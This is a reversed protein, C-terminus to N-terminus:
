KLGWINLFRRFVYSAGIWGSQDGVCDVRSPLLYSARSNVRFLAERHHNWHTEGCSVFYDERKPPNIKGHHIRWAHVCLRKPSPVRRLFAPAPAISLGFVALPDPANGTNNEATLSFVGKLLREERLVVFDLVVLNIPSLPSSSSSSSSLPRALRAGTLKALHQIKKIAESVAPQRQRQLSTSSPNNMRSPYNSPQSNTPPYVNQKKTRSSFSPHSGNKPFAVIVFILGRQHPSEVERKKWNESNRLM